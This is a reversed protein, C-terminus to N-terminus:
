GSAPTEAAQADDELPRTNGAKVWGEQGSSLLRVNLWTQDNNQGLVIITENHEVGGVQQYERGPGERLVLGIPQVVVAKYTGPELPEEPPEELPEELSLEPTVGPASLSAAPDTAEESVVEITATESEYTPKEPLVALKAMFYRAAAVGALSLVIMALTVGLVVKLLSLFLKAM